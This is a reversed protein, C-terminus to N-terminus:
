ALQDHPTTHHTGHALVAAPAEILYLPLDIDIDREAKRRRIQQLFVIVPRVPEFLPDPLDVEFRVNTALHDERYGSEGFAPDITATQAGAATLIQVLRFTPTHRSATVCPPIGEFCELVPSFPGHSDRFLSSRLLALTFPASMVFSLWHYRIGAGLTPIGLDRM